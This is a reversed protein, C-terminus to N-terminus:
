FKEGFPRLDIDHSWSSPPQAALNWVAEAIDEPHLYFSSPKDPMRERARDSDIVGDINVHSVHVGQPGYERALSQALARQGFKGVAFASFGNGGRFAATAGILVINGRGLRVMGELVERCCHVMGMVSVQFVQEFKEPPVSLFPGNAMLAANQILNAVEGLESRIKGFAEKVSAPDTIDTPLALAKGGEDTIERAVKELYAGSRAVLAVAHGGRAFRRAFHAGNGPGVGAIATVNSM